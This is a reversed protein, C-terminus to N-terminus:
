RHDGRPASRRRSCEASAPEHALLATRTAAQWLNVRGSLCAAEQVQRASTINSIGGICSRWHPRGAIAAYCPTRPRTSAQPCQGAMAAYRGFTRSVATKAGPELPAIHVADLPCGHERLGAKGGLLRMHADRGLTIRWPAFRLTATRNLVDHIHVAWVSHSWQLEASATRLHLVELQRLYSAWQRAIDGWTRVTAASAAFAWDLLTYGLEVSPSRRSDNKAHSSVRCHSVDRAWGVSSLRMCCRQPFWLLGTDLGDLQIPAAVVLDLRLVLLLAYPSGKTRAYDDALEAAKAISLSQSASKSLLPVPPEHKSRLAGYEADLLAAQEPNWSHVFVDAANPRIVHQRISESCLRILRSSM